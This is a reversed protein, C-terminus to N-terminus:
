TATSNRRIEPIAHEMWRSKQEDRGYLSRVHFLLFAFILEFAKRPLLFSHAV